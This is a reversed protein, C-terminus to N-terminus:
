LEAEEDGKTSLRRLEQEPAALYNKDSVVPKGTLDEIERRTNGAVRGGKQAAVQNQNFGQADDKQAIETTTAEGLMTLILELDTMHDRLNERKLGKIQKHESPKVGFTGQSIESTLIAYELGEKVGREKWEETLKNRIDVSQLRKDIWEDSYGKAKYLARARETALAPNEIEQLREHGVKALWQKFPEAKPSPVSQIIRFMSEVNACEVQYTRGNKPNKLPFKVFFDSLEVESQKKVQKKLDAWYKSPRNTEVLIAIVDVVAFHWQQTEEDWIRRIEKSEFTSLDTMASNYCM